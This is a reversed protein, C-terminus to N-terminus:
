QRLTQALNEGRGRVRPLPTPPSPTKTEGRVGSGEGRLVPALPPQRTKRREQRWMVVLFGGIGLLTLVGGLRVFNMVAAGYKGEDPDYHFCFLLVQDVPSGIKNGSAEVLGLRLDRPSYSIDYFYRSIKGHPTLVM